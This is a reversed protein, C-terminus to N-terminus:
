TLQAACRDMTRELSRREHETLRPRCWDWVQWALRAHGLEDRAIEHLAARVDDERAERLRAAAVLAGYTERVCGEIANERAFALFSRTGLRKVKARRAQVGRRAALDTMLLTHRREQRAARRAARSLARPAGFAVLERAMREFAWVSADELYAAQAAWAAFGVASPAPPRVMGRPVRGSDFWGDDTCSAKVATGCAVYVEDPSATGVGPAFRAPYCVVPADCMAACSRPDFFGGGDVVAKAAVSPDVHVFDFSYSAPHRRELLPACCGAAGAVFLANQLALRLARATTM